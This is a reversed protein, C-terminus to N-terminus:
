PHSKYTDNMDIIPPLPLPTTPAQDGPVVPSAGTQHRNHKADSKKITAYKQPTPSFTSKRQTWIQIQIM